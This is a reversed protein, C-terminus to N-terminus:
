KYVIVPVGIEVKEYLTAADDLRMNICGRSGYKLYRQGGFEKQWSADHLGIGQYIAMWYDVYSRYGEGRLYTKQKKKQICTVMEPTSYGASPKGTVIDCTMDVKGDKIYYLVQNTLDVEIYTDGIDNLGRVYGKHIYVPEHIESIGSKLASLFYEKEKAIDITTGYLSFSIHKVEGLHNVFDREAKYTNYPLLLDEIYKLAKAEDLVPKGSSDRKFDKTVKSYSYFSSLVAKDIPVTESGLDYTIKTELLPSIEDFLSKQQKMSESLERDKFYYDDINVTFDEEFSKTVLELVDDPNLYQNINSYLYFGEEESYRIELIQNREESSDKVFKLNAIQEKLKYNNFSVTPSFDKNGKIKIINLFWLSPIESNYIETLADTYDISFDIDKLLISETDYKNSSIRVESVDFKDILEENVTAIDKGTCYVGNIWTGYTFGDRYFACVYLYFIFVVCLLIGLFALTFKSLKGKM